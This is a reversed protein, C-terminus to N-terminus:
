SLIFPFRPVSHILLFFPFSFFPVKHSYMIQIPPLFLSCLVLFHVFTLFPLPCKHCKLIIPWPSIKSPPVSLSRFPFRRKEDQGEETAHFFIATFSHWRKAEGGMDGLAISGHLLDGTVWRIELGIKLRWLSILRLYAKPLWRLLSIPHVIQLNVRLSLVSPLCCYVCQRWTETRGEASGTVTLLQQVARHLSCLYKWCPFCFNM